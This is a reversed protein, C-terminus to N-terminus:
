AMDSFVIEETACYRFLSQGILIVPLTLSGISDFGGPPFGPALFCNDKMRWKSNDNLIFSLSAWHALLYFDM